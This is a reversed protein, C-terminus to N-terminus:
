SRVPRLLRGVWALPPILGAFNTLGNGDAFRLSALNGPESLQKGRAFDRLTQPSPSTDSIDLALITGRWPHDKTPENGLTLDHNWNIPRGAYQLAASITLLTAALTAVIAFGGGL